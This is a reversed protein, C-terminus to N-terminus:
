KRRLERELKWLADRAKAISSRTKAKAQTVLGRARLRKNGSVVGAAETGRGVLDQARHSIKDRFGM